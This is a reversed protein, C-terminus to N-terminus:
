FVYKLLFCFLVLSFLVMWVLFADGTMSRRDRRRVAELAILGWWVAMDALALLGFVDMILRLRALLGGFATEGFLDAALYYVSATSGLVLFVALFVNWARLNFKELRILFRKRRQKRASELERQKKRQEIQGSLEQRVDPPLDSKRMVNEATRFDNRAILKEIRERDNM